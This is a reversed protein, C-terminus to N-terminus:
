SEAHQIGALYRSSWSTLVDSRELGELFEPPTKRRRHAGLAIWSRPNRSYRGVWGLAEVWQVESFREVVSPASAGWTRVSGDAFRAAMAHVGVAISIAPPLDEPVDSTGKLNEGWSIVKGDARLVAFDTPGSAIQVVERVADPIALQNRDNAGWIRVDGSETLAMTNAQSASIEVVRGLDHPVNCQGVHNRGWAAIRGDSHLAVTHGEVSAISVVKNLGRPMKSNEGTLIGWERVTGDELVVVASGPRDLRASVANESNRRSVALDVIPGLDTPVLGAGVKAAEPDVYRFILEGPKRKPSLPFRSGSRTGSLISFGGGAIVATALLGRFVKRRGVKTPECDQLAERFDAVSAFRKAPDIALARDLVRDYRRPIGAVKSASVYRGLPLTGTLLHYFIVGVSYLDSQISPTGDTHVLEPAMFHPTGIQAGSVTLSPADVSEFAKSLGFDSIKVKGEASLLCNSPKLDRHLIGQDHAYELGACIEEIARVAEAFDLKGRLEGGSLYEMSIFRIGDDTEGTDFVSVINEHALSKLIESESEFRESLIADEAFEPPMVKLAVEREDSDRALYVAGMGGIAILNTVAFGTERANLEDVEPPVWSKSFSRSLGSDGSDMGLEILRSPDPSDM